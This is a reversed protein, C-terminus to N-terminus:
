RHRMRILDKHAYALGHLLSQFSNDFGCVRLRAFLAILTSGWVNRVCAGRM